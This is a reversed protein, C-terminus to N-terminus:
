DRRRFLRAEVEDWGLLREEGSDVAQIRRLIEDAWATEVDEDTESDLSEILRSAIAARETDSLDLVKKLLEEARATMKVEFCRAPLSDPGPLV